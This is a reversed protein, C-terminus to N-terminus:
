ICPNARNDFNVQIQFSWIFTADYKGDALGPGLPKDLDCLTGWGEWQFFSPAVACEKNM